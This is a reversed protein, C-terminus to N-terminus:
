CKNKRKLDFDNSNIELYINLGLVPQRFTLNYKQACVKMRQQEYCSNFSILCYSIVSGEYAFDTHPIFFASFLAAWLLCM